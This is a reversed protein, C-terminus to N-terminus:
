KQFSRRSLLEFRGESDNADVPFTTADVLTPLIGIKAGCGRVGLGATGAGLATAADYSAIESLTMM